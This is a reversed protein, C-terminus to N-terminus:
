EDLVNAEEKVEVELTEITKLTKVKEEIMSVEFGAGDLFIIWAYATSYKDAGFKWTRCTPIFQKLFLNYWFIIALDSWIIGRRSQCNLPFNGSPSSLKKCIILWTLRERRAM